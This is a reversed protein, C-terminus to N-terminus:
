VRELVFFCAFVEEALHLVDPADVAIVAEDCRKGIPAFRSRNVIREYARMEYIIYIAYDFFFLGLAARGSVARHKV